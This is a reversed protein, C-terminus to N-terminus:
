KMYKFWMVQIHSLLDRSSNKLEGNRKEGQLM